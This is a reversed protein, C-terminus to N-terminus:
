RRSRQITGASICRTTPCPQPQSRPACQSPPAQQCVQRPQVPPCYRGGGYNGGGGVRYNRTNNVYTYSSYAPSPFYPNYGYSATYGSSYGPNYNGSVAIRTPPFFPNYAGYDGSGYGSVVVEAPQAYVVQPQQPLVYQAPASQTSQAPMVNTLRAVRTEEAAYELQKMRELHKYEMEKLKLLHEQAQHNPCSPSCGVRKPTLTSTQSQCENSSYGGSGPQAKTSCADCAYGHTTLVLVVTFLLLVKLTQM